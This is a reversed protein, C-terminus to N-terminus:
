REESQSQTQTASNTIEALLKKRLKKHNQFKAVLAQQQPNLTRLVNRIQIDTNAKNLNEAITQIARHNTRGRWSQHNWKLSSSYKARFTNVSTRFPAKFSCINSINSHMRSIPNQLLRNGNIRASYYWFFWQSPVITFHCEKLLKDM